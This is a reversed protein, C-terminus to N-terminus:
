ARRAAQGVPANATRMIDAARARHLSCGRGLHVYKMPVMTRKTQSLVRRTRLTTM